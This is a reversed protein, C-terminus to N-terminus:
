RQEELQQRIHETTEKLGGDGPRVAAPMTIVPEPVPEVWAGETLVLEVDNTGDGLEPM